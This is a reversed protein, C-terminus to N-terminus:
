SKRSKEMDLKYFHWIPCLAESLVKSSKEVLRLLNLQYGWSFSQLYISEANEILHEEDQTQTTQNTGGM